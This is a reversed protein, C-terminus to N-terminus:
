QEMAELRDWEDLFAPTQVQPDPAEALIVIATAVMAAERTTVWGDRSWGVALGFLGLYVWVVFNDPDSEHEAGASFAFRLPRTTYAWAIIRKNLRMM